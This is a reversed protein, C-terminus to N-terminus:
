NKEAYFIFNGDPHQPANEMSTQTTTRLTGTAPDAFTVTNGQLGTVLVIHGRGSPSFEPGNLAVLVPTGAVLCGRILDWKYAGIEGGDKWTYGQVMGNLANLLEFGYAENVDSDTFLTGHLTNLAMAVCTQGDSVGHSQFLPDVHVRSPGFDAPDLGMTGKMNLMQQALASNGSGGSIPDGCVVYGTREGVVVHVDEEPIALAAQAVEAVSEENKISRKLNVIATVRGGRAQLRVACGNKGVLPELAVQCEQALAQLTAPSPQNIIAVRDHRDVDLFTLALKRAQEEQGPTVDRLLIAVCKRGEAQRVEVTVKGRGVCQELLRQCQGELSSDPLARGWLACLGLLVFSLLALKRM